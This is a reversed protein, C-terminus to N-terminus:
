DSLFISGRATPAYGVRQLYGSMDNRTASASAAAVDRKANVFRELALEGSVTAVAAENLLDLGRAVEGGLILSRAEAVRGLAAAAADRNTGIEVARRAWERARGFDGSLLREYSRVVALWAHVPTDGQGELLREARTAWGRIPALLATDFLLHLAVRVAAGAALLRDGARLGEQHVREWADITADVHGAAYACNAFLALDPGDLPESTEAQVFLDYALQWNGQAAADRARKRLTAETVEHM